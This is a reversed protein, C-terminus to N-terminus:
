GLVGGPGSSGRGRGLMQLLALMMPTPAGESGGASAPSGIGGGLLGEAAGFLRSGQGGGTGTFLRSPAFTEPLPARRPAGANPEPAMPSTQQAPVTVGQPIGSPPTSPAAPGPPAPAASPMPAAPASPMPMPANPVGGTPMGGGPHWERPKERTDPAFGVGDPMEGGAQMATDMLGRRRVAM